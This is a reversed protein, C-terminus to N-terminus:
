PRRERGQLYIAHTMLMVSVLIAHRADEGYPMFLTIAQLVCAAIYWFVSVGAGREGPRDEGLPPCPM